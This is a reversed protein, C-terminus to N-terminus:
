AITVATEGLIAEVPNPDHQETSEDGRALAGISRQTRWYVDEMLIHAFEGNRGISLLGGVGTGSTLARRAPEYERAFVPYGLPIRRVFADQLRADIDPIRPRLAETCADITVEDRQNWVQDGVFSGCDAVIATSGEPVTWPTAQSPETLRFYPAGRDPVWNVVNPLLARGRLRLEVLVISRFRFVRAADLAPSPADVLRALVPLPISSVVASAEIDEGDARVGIVQGLDTVVAEVRRELEVPSTLKAALAGCVAAVGGEVPYVHHVGAVEPASACYGIAVARRSITGAARLRLAHFVGSPIKDAASAALDDAAVGSWAEILPIAIEDALARGYEARLRESASGHGTTTQTLRARLASGVFRPVRVLGEPYTRARVGILVSEGYRAVPRCAAGIGVAAALRNTIFHAGVDSVFGGETTTAALGAVSTGAELVRVPVGRRNLNRAAALGALGAGLVVIPPRSPTTM